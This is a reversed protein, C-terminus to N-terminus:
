EAWGHAEDKLSTFLTREHFYAGPFNKSGTACLAVPNPGRRRDNIFFAVKPHGKENIAPPSTGMGPQKGHLM